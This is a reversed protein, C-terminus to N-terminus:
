KQGEIWGNIHAVDISVKRTESKLFELTENQNELTINQKELVAGIERLTVHVPEIKQEIIRNLIRKAFGRLALFATYLIGLAWALFEFTEKTEQLKSM